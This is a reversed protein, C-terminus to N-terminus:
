APNHARLFADLRELFDARDAERSFHHDALPQEVYIYDRGEVKGAAKLKEAMERSQGVPVRRDKRGHVMLIPTGFQAAANIPSVAAFDPAQEKMWDNRTRHYLFRRDYRTMAALDSVGAYSVACRFRGPDRQAARMAAYGGYSAGVICVRKPDALGQQVAWDVADNLDDQMSLGWQGEGKEAFATGYGSSGRYNPQLVAYGRWALFQVWWDWEEADRAFPGGHPMLILPLNRPDRGAPVTLVAAIELGDRAKYRITRVPALRVGPAFRDSVKSLLNMTGAATDYYYYLGPQDPTGVHVIMRQGNSSTSIIRARRDGVAKDIDAQIRALDPDFWHVTPADAVYHVGALADGSRSAEVWGVDFGPAAFIKRGLQLTALDLEYLADSGEKDDSAIAKGPDATFILPVILKEGKRRDARDVTRFRSKGDPRYFLIGTRTADDFGVGMRVTGTADAYWGRVNNRSTQVTRTRGTSVDIEDVQPWFGPQNSYISTQYSLLIRPTGDRAVWIVDDANQGATSRALVNIKSGDRKVGAVRSIYWPMGQVSTEAGLGIILWDDNVWKWWNLDNDRLGLMHIRDPGDRLEAIVLQQEGNVAVRTAIRTGDPSLAPGDMLPLAAFDKATWQVPVATEAAPAPSQAPVPGAVFAAMILLVVPLSKM